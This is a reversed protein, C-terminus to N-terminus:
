MRRGGPLRHPEQRKFRQRRVVSGAPQGRYDM